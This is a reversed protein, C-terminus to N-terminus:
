TSAQDVQYTVPGQALLHNQSDYRYNLTKGDRNESQLLSTDAEGDTWRYTRNIPKSGDPRSAVLATQRGSDDYTAKVRFEGPYRTLTRKDDDDYEFTAWIDDRPGGQHTLRNAQDYEYKVRGGEDEIDTLNNNLDYTYHVQYNNGGGTHRAVTVQNRPNYEFQVGTTGHYRSALNGNADYNNYQLPRYNDNADQIEVLRDLKDYRYHIKNKNGDYVEIIRDRDDYSIVRERRPAPPREVTMRGGDDYQYTTVRGVADTTRTVQGNDNHEYRVLDKNLEVSKTSILDGDPQYVNRLENGQPDTMSTPFAPHVADTYGAVSKAGTPMTASIPNNRGDFDYTISAGLGNTTSAVDSNATWEKAQEHGLQDIAKTQRGKDDFHYTSTNGRPDKETTRGTAPYDFTTVAPEGGTLESITKVRRKADYSLRYIGGRPDTIRILNGAGDYEFGLGKGERDAFEKLNGSGDYAFPGHVGGTWDTMRVVRNAQDYESMTTVRGLPDYIATLRDAKAADYNLKIKVDNNNSMQQLVGNPHFLWSDESKDWKLTWKGDGGKTLKANIGSGATYTGNSNRTFTSTFATPGHFVVKDALIELGVDKGTSMTWGRGFAGSGESLNNYVHSLDTSFGVGGIKLDNYRVVVNGNATNVMVQLRDALQRLEVPFWEQLGIGPAGVDAAPRVGSSRSTGAAAASSSGSVSPSWARTSPAGGIGPTTRLPGPQDAEPARDPTLASGVAPAAPAPPAGAAQTPTAVVTTALVATITALVTSRWSRVPYLRM